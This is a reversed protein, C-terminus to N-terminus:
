SCLSCKESPHPRCYLHPQERLKGESLMRLFGSEAMEQKFDRMELLFSFFSLKGLLLCRGLFKFGEERKKLKGNRATNYIV